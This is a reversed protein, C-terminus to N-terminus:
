ATVAEPKHPPRGMPPAVFAAVDTSHVWWLDGSKIASLQRDTIYRRVTSADRGLSRAAQAVSVHGPTPRDKDETEAKALGEPSILWRALRGHAFEAYAELTGIQIRKHVAQRSCGLREAVETVTMLAGSM